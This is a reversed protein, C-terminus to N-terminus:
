RQYRTGPTWVSVPSVEQKKVRQLVYMRWLHIIRFPDWLFELEKIKIPISWAQYNGKGGYCSVWYGKNDGRTTTYQETFSLFAFMGYVQSRRWGTVLKITIYALNRLDTLKIQNKYSGDPNIFEQSKMIVMQVCCGVDPVTQYRRVKVSM